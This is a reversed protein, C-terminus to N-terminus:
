TLLAIGSADFKMPQPEPKGLQEAINKARAVIRNCMETGCNGFEKEENPNRAAAKLYAVADNVRNTMIDVRFINTYLQRVRERYLKRGQPTQLVAKTIISNKPPDISV